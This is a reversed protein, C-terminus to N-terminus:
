WLGVGGRRPWVLGGDSGNRAALSPVVSESGSMLVWVLGRVWVALGGRVPRLTQYQRAEM